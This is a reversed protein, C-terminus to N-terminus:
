MGWSGDECTIQGHGPFYFAFGVCMEDPFVEAQSKSNQWECHTHLTEGKKVVSPADVTFKVYKPNFQQEAVWQPDAVLMDKSGDAHIVETYASKGDNHMHDGIMAINMDQQVVCNVDFSSPQAAPIEFTDGNNAFLDAITHDPSPDGFKIDIVAQGDVAQDLANLWHTNIMLAQGPPLRFNLGAPLAAANGGLGEGGVAGLFSIHLMDETTCEHSEGVKFNTATTAYLTAHHGAASQYGVMALVDRAAEAPDAVWQCWEVNAGPEIDKITPTVFRTYGAMAPPPNFNAVWQQSGSDTGCGVLLALALWARM